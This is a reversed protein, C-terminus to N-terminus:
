FMFIFGMFTAPPLVSPSKQMMKSHPLFLLSLLWSLNFELAYFFIQRAFFLLILSCVSFIQLEGRLALKRSPFLEKLKIIFWLASLTHARPPVHSRRLVLAAAGPCSTDTGGRPATDTM